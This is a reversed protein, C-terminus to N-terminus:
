SAATARCLALAQSAEDRADLRDYAVALALCHRREPPRSANKAWEKWAAVVELWREEAVLIEVRRFHLSDVEAADLGGTAIARDIHERASSYKAEQIDLAIYLQEALSRAYPGLAPLDLADLAARTEALKSANYLEFIAHLRSATAPDVSRPDQAEGTAFDSSRVLAAAVLALVVLFTIRIRRHM